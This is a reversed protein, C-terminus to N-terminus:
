TLRLLRKIHKLIGGNKTKKDEYVLKNFADVKRMYEALSQIKKDQELLFKSEAKKMNSNKM